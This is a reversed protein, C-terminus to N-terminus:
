GEHTSFLAVSYRPLRFLRASTSTGACASDRSGLRRTNSVKRDRTARKLAYIRASPWILAPCSGDLEGAGRASAVHRSRGQRRGAPGCRNPASDTAYVSAHTLPLVTNPESTHWCWAAAVDGLGPAGM